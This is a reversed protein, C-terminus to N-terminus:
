PVPGRDRRHRCDQRGKGDPGGERAHHWRPLARVVFAGACPARPVPPMRPIGHPQPGASAARMTRFRRPVTDAVAGLRRDNTEALTRATRRGSWIPGQPDDTAEAARPPLHGLTSSMCLPSPAALAASARRWCTCRRRSTAAAASTPQRTASTHATAAAPAPSGGSVAREDADRTPTLAPSAVDTGRSSTSATGGAAVGGAALPALLVAGVPPVAAGVAGPCPPGAWIPVAGATTSRPLPV